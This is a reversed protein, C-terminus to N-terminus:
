PLSHYYRLSVRRLSNAAGPEGERVLGSRHVTTEFEHRPLWSKVFLEWHEPAKSIASSARTEVVWSPGPGFRWLLGPLNVEDLPPFSQGAFASARV